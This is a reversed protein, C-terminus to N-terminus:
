RAGRPRCGDADCVLSPLVTEDSGTSLVIATTAVAAAAGGVAAWFWWRRVLPTRHPPPPPPPPKQPEAQRRECLERLRVLEPRRDDDPPVRAMFEVIDALASACDGVQVETLALWRYPNARDPALHQAEKLEHLARAFDGSKFAAIGRDLHVQAADESSPGAFAVSTVVRLAVIAALALRM